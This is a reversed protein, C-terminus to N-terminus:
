PATSGGTDGGTGNQQTQQQMAANAKDVADQAANAPAVNHPGTSTPEVGQEIMTKATQKTAACGGASIVLVLAVAAAAVRQHTNM